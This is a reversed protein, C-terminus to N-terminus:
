AYGEKDRTGLQDSWYYHEGSIRTHPNVHDLVWQAPAPTPLRLPDGRRIHEIPAQLTWGLTAAVLFVFAATGTSAFAPAPAAGPDRNLGVGFLSAVLLAYFPTLPVILYDWAVSTFLGLALHGLIVIVALSQDPERRRWLAGALGLAILVLDLRSFLAINNIHDRVLSLFQDLHSPHRVERTALFKGWDPVIQILFVSGAALVGGLIFLLMARDLKRQGTRWRQVGDPGYLGVVMVAGLFTANYHAFWGWGALAGALLHLAPRKRQRAESFLWLSLALALALVIDHRLRAAAMVVASCFMFVAAFWATARNYLNRAALATVGILILTLLYSLWRGEWLGVGVLKFWVAWLAYVRPIDLGGGMMMPDFFHGTRMFSLSCALYGPEDTANMIPYYSLAAIRVASIAIVALAMGGIWLRRDLMRNPRECFTWFILAFTAALTVAMQAYVWEPRMALGFGLMVVAGGALVPWGLPALRSRLWAHRGPTLWLTVGIVGVAMGGVGAAVLRFLTSQGKDPQLMYLVIHVILLLYLSSLAWWRRQVTRFETM